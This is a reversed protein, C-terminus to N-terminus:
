LRARLAFLQRLNARITRLNNVKSRGSRRPRLDTPVSALRAGGKAARLILEMLVAWGRGVSVLSVHGLLERRFMLVGQFRPIPGFLVFYFARELGSLARGLLDRSEPTVYGLVLDHDDIPRLLAELATAPFQGDAPFFTVYEGTALAFGTRYVAGLGENVAHHVARVSSCDAALRDALASTGDTSGDDVILMEYSSVLRRLADGIETVVSELSEVENFAMIVASVRPPSPSPLAEAM